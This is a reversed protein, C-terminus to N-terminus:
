TQPMPSAATVIWAFAVIAAVVLALVVLLALGSRRLAEPNRKHETVRTM